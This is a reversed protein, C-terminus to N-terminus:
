EYVRHPCYVREHLCQPSRESRWDCYGTLDGYTQGNEYVYTRVKKGRATEPTFGFNKAAAENLIVADTADTGSEASLTRGSVLPIDLLDFYGSGIHQRSVRDEPALEETM